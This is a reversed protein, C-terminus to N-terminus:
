RCFIGFVVIHRAPFRGIHGRRRAGIFTEDIELNGELEILPMNITM